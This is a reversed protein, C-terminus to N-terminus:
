DNDARRNWAEIAEEEISGVYDPYRLLTKRCSCKTCHINATQGRKSKNIVIEAKGGCFPCPKLKEMEMRVKGMYAVSVSNHLGGHNRFLTM